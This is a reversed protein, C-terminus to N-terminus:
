GQSFPSFRKRLHWSALPLWVWRLVRWRFVISAPKWKRALSALMSAEGLFQLSSFHENEELMTSKNALVKNGGCFVAEAGLLVAARRGDKQQVFQDWVKALLYFQFHAQYGSAHERDRQVVKLARHYGYLFAQRMSPNPSHVAVPAPEGMYVKRRGTIHPDPDVFLSDATDDWKVRPSYVHLGQINLGSSWDRVAFIAHDLEPDSAFIEVINELINEHCFVMDADLKIFLDFDSSKEMILQQMEKHAELNPRFSILRHEWHRYKQSKISEISESIENEGSYLMIILIKFNIKNM